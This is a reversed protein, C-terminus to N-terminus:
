GGRKLQELYVEVAVVARHRMIDAHRESVESDRFMRAADAAMSVAEDVARRNPLPEPKM